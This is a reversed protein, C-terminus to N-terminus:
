RFVYGEDSLDDIDAAPGFFARFSDALQQTSRGRAFDVGAHREREPGKRIPIVAREVLICLDSTGGNPEMVIRADASVAAATTMGVVVALKAMSSMEAMPRRSPPIPRFLDDRTSFVREAREIDWIRSM